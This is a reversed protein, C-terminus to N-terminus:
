LHFFHMPKKQVLECVIWCVCINMMSHRNKEPHKCHVINNISGISVVVVVKFYIDQRGRIQSLQFKQTYAGCWYPLFIYRYEVGEGVFVMCKLPFSVHLLKVNGLLTSTMKFIWPFYENCQLRMQLLTVATKLIAAKCDAAARQVFRLYYM